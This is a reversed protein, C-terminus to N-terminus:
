QIKEIASKVDWHDADLESIATIPIFADYQGVKFTVAVETREACAEAIYKTVLKAGPYHQRIQNLHEVIWDTPIIFNNM